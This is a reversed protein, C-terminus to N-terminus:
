AASWRAFFPRVVCTQARAGGSLSRRAQRLRSLPSGRGHAHQPLARRRGGQQKPRRRRARRRAARGSDARGGVAGPRRHPRARSRRATGLDASRALQLRRSGGGAGRSCRPAGEGAPPRLRTRAADSRPRVSDALHRPAGARGRLLDPGGGATRPRGRPLRSVEGRCGSGVRARLREANAAFWTLHDEAEDLRGLSVLAEVLDPVFRTLGPERMEQGRAFGVLPMLVAAAADHRELSLELLGLAATAFQEAPRGSTTAALELAAAAAERATEEDGSYAAALARLALAYAVLTAQGVQEARVVGEDAHTAAVDFRGRLCETQALLVHIYPVSSEDGLDRAVDLLREFSEKAADLDEWWMRVVAVQFESSGMARSGRGAAGLSDAEELSAGTEELGLAAEALLRSGLAPGLLEADDLARGTEVAARAHEVAEPFRERLRFLIGSLIEHARAQVAPAEVSEVM